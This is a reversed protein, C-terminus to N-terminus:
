SCLDVCNYCTSDGDLITVVALSRGPEPSVNDELAATRELTVMFVEDEELQIDDVLMVNVCARKACKRITVEASLTKYDDDPM